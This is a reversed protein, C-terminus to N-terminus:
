EVGKWGHNIEVNDLQIGYADLIKWRLGVKDILERDKKCLESPIWTIMHIKGRVPKVQRVNM